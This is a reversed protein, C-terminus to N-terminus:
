PAAEFTVTAGFAGAGSVPPHEGSINTDLADLWRAGRCVATGQLAAPTAVAVNITCARPEDATWHQAGGVRDLTLYATGMDAEAGAGTITLYWGGDNSWRVLSGFQAYFHPGRNIRDLVVQTGDSLQITARGRHYSAIPTPAGAAGPLTSDIGPEGVTGAVGGSTDGIPQESAGPLAVPLGAGALLQCGSAAVAFLAVFSLAVFGSGGFRSRSGPRGPRGGL